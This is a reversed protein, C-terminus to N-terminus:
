VEDLKNLCCINPEHPYIKDKLEWAGSHRVNYIHTSKLAFRSIGKWLVQLLKNLARSFM